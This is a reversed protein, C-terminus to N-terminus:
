FGYNLPNFSTVHMMALIALSNPDSLLIIMLCQNSIKSDQLSVYRCVLRCEELSPQGVEEFIKYLIHPVHLDFLLQFSTIEENQKDSEM